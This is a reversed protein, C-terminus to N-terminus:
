RLNFNLSYFPKSILLERYHDMTLAGVFCKQYCLAECAGENFIFMCEIILFTSPTSAFRGEEVLEARVAGDSSRVNMNESPQAGSWDVAGWQSLTLLM